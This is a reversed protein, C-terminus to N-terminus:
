CGRWSPPLVLIGPRSTVAHTIAPGRLTPCDGLQVLQLLRGHQRNVRVLLLGFPVTTTLLHLLYSSLIAILDPIYASAVPRPYQLSLSCLVAATLAQLPLMPTDRAKDRAKDSSFDYLPTRAPITM